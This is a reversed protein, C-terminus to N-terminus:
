QGQPDTVPVSPVPSNSRPVCYIFPHSRTAAGGTTSRPSQPTRNYETIGGRTRGVHRCSVRSRECRRNVKNWHVAKDNQWLFAPTEVQEVSPMTCQLTAEPRLCTLSDLRSQSGYGVIVRNEKDQTKGPTGPSSWFQDLISCGSENLYM